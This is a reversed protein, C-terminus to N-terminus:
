PYYDKIRAIELLEIGINYIPASKLVEQMDCSIKTLLELTRDIINRNM